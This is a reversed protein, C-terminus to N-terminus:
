LLAASLDVGLPPLLPFCGRLRLGHCLDVAQRVPQRMTNLFDSSL